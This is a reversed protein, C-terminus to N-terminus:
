VAHGHHHHHVHSMSNGYLLEAAQHSTLDAPTCSAVLSRNLCLLHTAYKSIVETDHSVYLLTVGSKHISSLLEHFEERAAPDVGTTPEDLILLRPRFVLARAIFARQKQGGSLSTLLRNAIREISLDKLVKSVALRRKAPSLDFPSLHVSFANTVLERVTMPLLLEQSMVRQPVYGVFGQRCAQQPPLGFVSVSGESPKLQGLILRLLTTKGGGNPGILGIYSGKELAFSLDELVDNSGTFGFSLHDAVIAAHDVPV